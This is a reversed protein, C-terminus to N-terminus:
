ETRIATDAVAEFSANGAGEDCNHAGLIFVCIAMQRTTEPM